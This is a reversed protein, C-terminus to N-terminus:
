GVERSSAPPVLNCESDRLARLFSILQIKDDASLTELLQLISLREDKEM